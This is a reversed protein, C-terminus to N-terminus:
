FSRMGRVMEASIRRPTPSSLLPDRSVPGTPILLPCSFGPLRAAPVGFCLLITTPKMLVKVCDQLGIRFVVVGTSAGSGGLTTPPCICAYTSCLFVLGRSVFLTHTPVLYACNRLRPSSTILWEILEAPPFRSTRTGVRGSQHVRSAYRAQIDSTFAAAM